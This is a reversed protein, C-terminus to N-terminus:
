PRAADCALPLPSPPRACRVLQGCGTEDHQNRKDVSVVVLHCHACQWRRHCVPDAPDCCKSGAGGAAASDRCPFFSSCAEANCGALLGPPARDGGTRALLEGPATSAAAAGGAATHFPGIDDCLAAAASVFLLRRPRQRTPQAFRPQPCRVTPVARPLSMVLELGGGRQPGEGAIPGGFGVRVTNGM